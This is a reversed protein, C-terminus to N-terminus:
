SSEKYLKKILALSMLVSNVAEKVKYQDSPVWWRTKLRYPRLGNEVDELSCFIEEPAPKNIWSEGLNIELAKFWEVYNTIHEREFYGVPELYELLKRLKENKLYRHYDAVYLSESLFLPAGYVKLGKQKITSGSQIIEIGVGGKNVLVADEVNEVSVTNADPLLTHVLGEYRGKVFIPAGHQILKDYGLNDDISDKNVILFFGVFDTLKRGAVKNYIKLNASGVIRLDTDKDINYNYMGWKTVKEPNRLYLQNMSLLEDMGVVTFDVEDLKILSSGNHPEDGELRVIIGNISIKMGLFGVRYFREKRKRDPALCLYPCNFSDLFKKAKVPDISAEAKGQSIIGAVERIEQQQDSIDALKDMINQFTRGWRPIVCTVDYDMPRGRSEKFSYIYKM